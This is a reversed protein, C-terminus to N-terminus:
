IRLTRCVITSIGADSQAVAGVQFMGMVSQLRKARETLSHAAAAAQEVLTAYECVIALGVHAIDVLDHKREDISTSRKLWAASVSAVLLAILSIVLPLWLTQTFSRKHM